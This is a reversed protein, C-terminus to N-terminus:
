PCSQPDHACGWLILFAIFPWYLAFPLGILLWLGRRRFRFIAIFLFAIWLLALAFSARFPDNPTVIWTGFSASFAVVLAAWFLGKM